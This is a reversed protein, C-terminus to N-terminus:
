WALVPPFGVDAAGRSRWFDGPIFGEDLLTVQAAEAVPEAARFFESFLTGRRSGLERVSPGVASGSVPVTVTFRFIGCRRRDAFSTMAFVTPTGLDFRAM